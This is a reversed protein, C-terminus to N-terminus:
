MGEEATDYTKCITTGAYTRCNNGTGDTALWKSAAPIGALSATSYAAAVLAASLFALIRLM